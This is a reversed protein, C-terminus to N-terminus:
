QLDVLNATIMLAEDTNTGTGTNEQCVDDRKGGFEKEDRSHSVSGDAVVKRVKSEEKSLSFVECARKSRLSGQIRKPLVKSKKRIVLKGNSEITSVIDYEDSGDVQNHVLDKKVEETSGDFISSTNDESELVDSVTEEQSGLFRFVGKHVSDDSNDRKHVEAMIKDVMLVNPSSNDDIKNGQLDYFSMNPSIQFQYDMVQMDRNTVSGTAENKNTTVTDENVNGDEKNEVQDLLEVNGGFSDRQPDEEMRDEKGKSEVENEEKQEEVAAEAEDENDQAKEQVNERPKEQVNERPKEQVNERPQDNQSDDDLNGEPNRLNPFEKINEYHTVTEEANCGAALHGEKGCKICTRAQGRYYFWLLLRGIRLTSPIPKKISMLATRNGNHKGALAGSTYVQDRISFVKGYSSLIKSLDDDTLEFPANKITVIIKSTSLNVIQISVEKNDLALIRGEYDRMLREFEDAAHDEFKVIIKSYGVQQVGYINMFNAQIKGLIGFVDSTDARENELYQIGFSNKRKFFEMGRSFAM